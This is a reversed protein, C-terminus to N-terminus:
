FHESAYKRRLFEFVTLCLLEYLLLFMIESVARGAPVSLVDFVVARCLQLSSQRNRYITMPDANWNIATNSESEEKFLPTFEEKPTSAHESFTNMLVWLRLLPPTQFSM